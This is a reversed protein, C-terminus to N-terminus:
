VTTTTVTSGVNRPVRKFAVFLNQIQLRHDWRLMKVNEGRISPHESPRSTNLNKKLCWACALFFISFHYELSLTQYVALRSGDWIGGPDCSRADAGVPM